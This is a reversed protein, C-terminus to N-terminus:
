IPIFWSTMSTFIYACIGPKRLSTFLNSWFRQLKQFSVNEEKFMKSSFVIAFNTKSISMGSFRSEPGQSFGPGLVRHSGLVRPPSLGQSSGSSLLFWSGILVWLGLLVWSRTIGHPGLARHSSIIRQHGVFSGSVCLSAM